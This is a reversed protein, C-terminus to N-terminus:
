ERATREKKREFLVTWLVRCAVSEWSRVFIVSLSIRSSLLNTVTTSKSLWCDNLTYLLNEQIDWRPMLFYVLWRMLFVMSLVRTIEESVEKMGMERKPWSRFQLRMFRMLSCDLSHMLPEVEAKTETTTSTILAHSHSSWRRWFWPYLRQLLREFVWVQFLVDTRYRRHRLRILSLILDCDRFHIDYWTHHHVRLQMSTDEWVSIWPSDTPWEDEQFSSSVCSSRPDEKSLRKRNLDLECWHDEQSEEQCEKQCQGYSCEFWLSM